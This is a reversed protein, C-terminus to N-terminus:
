LVFSRHRDTSCWALTVLCIQKLSRSFWIKCLEFTKLFRSRQSISLKIIRIKLIWTIKSSIWVSTSKWSPIYFIMPSFVERKNWSFEIHILYLLFENIPNLYISEDIKLFWFKMKLLMKRCGNFIYITLILFFLFFM